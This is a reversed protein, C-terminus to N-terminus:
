FATKKHLIYVKEARCSIIVNNIFIYIHKQFLHFVMFFYLNKDTINVAASRQPQEFLSLEECVSEDILTDDAASESIVEVSSLLSIETTSSLLGSLESVASLEASFEDSLGSTESGSLSLTVGLLSSDNRTPRAPSLINFDSIDVTNVFLPLSQAGASRVSSIKEPTSHSPKTYIASGEFVARLSRSLSFTYSLAFLSNM